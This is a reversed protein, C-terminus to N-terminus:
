NIGTVAFCRECFMDSILKEPVSCIVVELIHRRSYLVKTMSEYTVIHVHM